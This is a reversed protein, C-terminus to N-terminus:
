SSFVVEPAKNMFTPYWLESYYQLNTTTNTGESITVYMAANEGFTEATEDIISQIKEKGEESHIYNKAAQLDAPTDGCTFIIEMVGEYSTLAVHTAPITASNYIDTLQYTGFVPKDVFIDKLRGSERYEKMWKAYDVGTVLDADIRITAYDYVMAHSGDALIEDYDDYKEWEVEAGFAESIARLPVFTTGNYIFPEVVKGNADTPTLEKGDIFIKIDRYTAAITKTPQKRSAMTNYLEQDFTLGEKWVPLYQPTTISVTSLASDWVVDKYLITAMTRIPVFTTGEYIFPIVENGNADKCIHTAHPNTDAWVSIRINMFKVSIEETGTTAYTHATFLVFLAAILLIKRM